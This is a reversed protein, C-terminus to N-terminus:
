SPSPLVPEAAPPKEEALLYTQVFATLVAGVVPGLVIGIFGFASVGGLLSIILMLTSMRATGALMVPRVVNDVNGLILVGIAVLVIGKVISGSLALWVAAPVWVLAAGVAPLIALGAMLCGWLPAGPIGLIAFAIGGLVGQVAAIVLTSTVSTAVIERVLTLLRENEERGFPLLRAAQRALQPADKLMFFLIALTMVVGFLISAAGKAVVGARNVAQGAVGGVSDSLRQVVEQETPLFPLRQHLWNWVAHFLGMPGGHDALHGKVYEVVQAGERLVLIGVLVLPVVLVLLVLATLLVATRTPGIRRSLRERVSGLCIALVVAWGIEVLFPQVIRYALVAILIAAGYFFMTTLRQADGPQSM